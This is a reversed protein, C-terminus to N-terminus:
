HPFLHNFIITCQPSRPRTQPPIHWSHGSQPHSKPRLLSLHITSVSQFPFPTSYPFRWALRFALVLVALSAEPCISAPLASHPHPLLSSLCWLRLLTTKLLFTFCDSKRRVSIVRCANQLINQFSASYYPLCFATWLFLHHYNPTLHSISLLPCILICKPPLPFM